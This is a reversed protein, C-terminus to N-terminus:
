LKTPSNLFNLPAEFKMKIGYGPTRGFWSFPEAGAPWSAPWRAPGYSPDFRTTHPELVCREFARSSIQRNKITQPWESWSETGFIQFTYSKKSFTVSKCNKTCFRPWFPGLGNFCVSRMSLKQVTHELAEHSSIQGWNHDLAGAPRSAPRRRVM